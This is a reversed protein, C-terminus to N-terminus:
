GGVRRRLQGVGARQRGVRRAQLRKRQLLDRVAGVGASGVRNRGGTRKVV